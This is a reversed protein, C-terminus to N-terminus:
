SLKSSTPNEHRIVRLWLNHLSVATHRRRDPWRYGLLLSSFVDNSFTNCGQCGALIFDNAASECWDGCCLWNTRRLHWNMSRCQLDIVSGTVSHVYIYMCHDASNYNHPQMLLKGQGDSFHLILLALHGKELFPLYSCLHSWKLQIFTIQTISRAVIGEWVLPSCIQGDRCVTMIMWHSKVAGGGGRGKHDVDDGEIPPPLHMVIIKISLTCCSCLRWSSGRWKRRCCLQWDFKSLSLCSSPTPLAVVAPSFLSWM